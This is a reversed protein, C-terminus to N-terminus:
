TLLRKVNLSNSDRIKSYIELSETLSKKAEEDMRLSQFAKGKVQLADAVGWIFSCEKSAAMRYSRESFSLAAEYNGKLLMAEAAVNLLEVLHLRYGCEEAVLRGSKFAGEAESFKGQLVYLKALNLKSIAIIEHSATKNGWDLCAKLLQEAGELDGEVIYASALLIRWRLAHRNLELGLIVERWEVISRATTAPERRFKIVVKWFDGHSSWWIDGPVIPPVTVHETDGGTLEDLVHLCSRLPHLEENCDRIYRNIKEQKELGSYSLFLRGKIANDIRETIQKNHEAWSSKTMTLAKQLSGMMILYNILRINAKLFNEYQWKQPLRKIHARLTSEALRMNGLEAAFLSRQFYFDSLQQETLGFPTGPPAQGRPTFMRLIDDGRQYTGFREGIVEYGGMKDLFISLANRNDGAKVSSKLFILLTKTM